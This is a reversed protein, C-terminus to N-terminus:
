LSAVSQQSHLEAQRSRLWPQQRCVSCVFFFCKIMLQLKLQPLSSPAPAWAM